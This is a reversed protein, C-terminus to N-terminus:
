AGDGTLEDRLREIEFALAKATPADFFARMSVEIGHEVQVSWLLRAALLSTGGGVMFDDDPGLEAGPLLARMAEVISTLLRAGPVGPEPAGPEPDPAALRHIHETM